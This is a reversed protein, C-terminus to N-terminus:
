CVEEADNGSAQAWQTPITDDPQGRKNTRAGIRSDYLKRDPAAHCDEKEM